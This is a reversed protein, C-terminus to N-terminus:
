RMAPPLAAEATDGMGQGDARGAAPYRTMSSQRPFPHSKPPFAENLLFFFLLIKDGPHDGCDVLM